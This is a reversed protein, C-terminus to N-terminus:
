IKHKLIRLKSRISNPLIGTMEKLKIKIQYKYNMKKRYSKIVKKLDNENQLNNIAKKHINFYPYKNMSQYKACEEFTTEEIIKIKKGKLDDIIRKGIESNILIASIGEQNDVYKKGWYDGLRIDSMTRKSRSVCDFCASNLLINDFFIKYFMDKECVGYYKNKGEQIQICFDHWGIYKSRFNVKDIKNIGKKELIKRYKEWVLYSPVGHCFLDIKIIENKINNIELLKNIGTIQCPTGFIIFKATSDKQCSEILEKAADVTNSQLYKSGKLLEIDEFNKAIIAKSINKDYDYVTGFIKYGNEIGYKSIEYAIGGSTCSNITEKNTSQASYLLGKKLEKGFEEEKLFKACVKQCKGCKICKNEDVFAQYFGEKNMKYEIAKAPCVLICAGCGTCYKDSEEINNKM